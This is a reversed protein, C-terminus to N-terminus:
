ASNCKECEKMDDFPGCLPDEADVKVCGNTTAIYQYTDIKCDGPRASSLCLLARDDESIPSLAAVTSLGLLLSIFNNKKIYM